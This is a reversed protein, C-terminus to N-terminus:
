MQVKRKAKYAEFDFTGCAIEALHENLAGSQIDDLVPDRPEVIEVEALRGAEYNALAKEIADLSVHLNDVVTQVLHPKELMEATSLRAADEIIYASYVRAVQLFDSATM